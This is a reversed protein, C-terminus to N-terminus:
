FEILRVNNGFYEDVFGLHVIDFSDCSIDIYGSGAPVRNTIQHGICTLQSESMKYVETRGNEGEDRCAFYINDDDDASLAINSASGTSKAYAPTEWQDDLAIYKRVFLKDYQYDDNFACYLTGNSNTILKIDTSSADGSVGSGLMNWTTGSGSYKYVYLPQSSDTYGCYINDSGDIHLDVSYAIGSNLQSAISSWTGASSDYKKVYVKNSYDDEIFSVYLDDNSDTQMSVKSTKGQSLGFSITQWSEATVDYKEVNLKDNKELAVFVNGSSDTATDFGPNTTSSARTAFNKWSYGNYKMIYFVDNEDLFSLYINDAVDHITKVRSSAGSSLSSVTKVELRSNPVNEFYKGSSRELINDTTNLKFVRLKDFVDIDTFAVFLNGSGDVSMQANSKKNDNIDIPINTWLDESTDYKKLAFSNGSDKSALCYLTGSYHALDILSDCGDFTDTESITTWSESSTMRKVELGDIRYNNGTSDILIKLYNHDLETDVLSPSSWTGNYTLKYTEYSLSGYDNYYINLIDNDCVMYIRKPGTYGLNNGIETWGNNGHRLVCLKRESDYYAIYMYNNSSDSDYAMAINKATGQSFVEFARTAKDLSLDKWATIVIPVRKTESTSDQTCTLDLALFKDQTLSTPVINANDGTVVVTNTDTSEWSATTAAPGFDPLTFSGESIHYASSKPTMWELDTEVAEQDSLRPIVTIVFEKTEQASPGYGTPPPDNPTLNSSLTATITGTFPDNGLSPRTVSMEWIDDISNYSPTGVYTQLATEVSVSITSGNGGSADINLGQTVYDLSNYKYDFGMVLREKDEDVIEQNSQPISLVVVGNNNAASFTKTTSEGELTITAVLIGEGDNEGAEPRSIEGNSKIWHHGSTDWYISTGCTGTPPLYINVDTQSPLSLDEKAELVAELASKPSPVTIYFDKTATATGYTFTATIYGFSDPSRFAPQTVTGDSAVAGHNSCDWSVTAGHKATTALTLDETTSTQMSFNLAADDAAEQDTEPRIITVNITDTDPQLVPPEGGDNPWGMYVFNGTITITVDTDRADPLIVEGGKLLFQSTPWTWWVKPGMKNAPEFPAASLNLNKKVHSLNVNDGKIYAESVISPMWSDIINQKTTNDLGWIVAHDVYLNNVQSSEATGDGDIDWPKIMNPFIDKGKYDKWTRASCDKDFTAITENECVFYLLTGSSVISNIRKHAISAGDNFLGAGFWGGDAYVGTGYGTGDWNEWYSKDYSGVYGNQGCVVLIDDDDDSYSYMETIDQHNVASGDNYIRRKSTYHDWREGDWATVFGNDCGLVLRNSFIVMKNVIRSGLVSSFESDEWDGSTYKWVEGVQNGLYYDGDFYEGSIVDTLQWKLSDRSALGTGSGANTWTSSSYSAVKGGVGAILLTTGNVLMFSAKEGLATGDNYPGMGSGSGDSYKWSTGDFSSIEGGDHAVILDDGLVVPKCDVETINSTSVNVLADSTYTYEYLNNNSIDFYSIEADKTVFVIKTGFEVAGFVTSEVQVDSFKQEFQTDDSFDTSGTYDTWTTGTCSVITNYDDSTNKAIAILKSGDVLMSAVDRSGTTSGDDCLGSGYNYPTWTTGNLSAVYGNDSGVIAINPGFEVMANIRENNVYTGDYSTWASGGWVAVRGDDGGIVLNGNTLVTMTRVAENSMATGDSRLGSTADYNTWSTGNWSAVRGLKNAVVLSTGVQIMSTIEQYGTATGSNFPGTGDGTGNPWVWDTGDFSYIEGKWSGFVLNGDFVCVATVESFNDDGDYCLGTGDGKGDFHKWDTGDFSAIHNYRGVLVLDGDFVVADVFEQPGLPEELDGNTMVHLSKAEYASLDRSYFRVVDIEGDWFNSTGDNTAGITVTKSQVTSTGINLNTVFEGDVYLKGTTGDWTTTATHFQDDNYTSTTNTTSGKAIVEIQNSSNLYLEYTASSTGDGHGIVVRTGTTSSTKFKAFVTFRNTSICDLDGVASDLGSGTTVYDDTGDFHLHDRSKEIGGYVATAGSITADRENPSLDADGGANFPYYAELGLNSLKSLEPGALASWRTGDYEAVSGNDMIVQIKSNYNVVKRVSSHSLAAGLRSGGNLFLKGENFNTPM